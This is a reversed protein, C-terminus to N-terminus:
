LEGQRQSADLLKAQTSENSTHLDRIQNKFTQVQRQLDKERFADTAHRQYNL